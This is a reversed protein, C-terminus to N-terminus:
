FHPLFRYGEGDILIWVPATLNLFLNAVGRHSAETDIKIPANIKYTYTSQQRAWACTVSYGLQTNLYTALSMEQCWLCTLLLSVLYKEQEWCACTMPPSLNTKIPQSGDTQEHWHRLRDWTVNPFLHSALWLSCISLQEYEWEWGYAYNLRYIYQM